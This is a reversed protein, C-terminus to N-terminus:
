LYAYCAAQCVGQIHLLCDNCKDLLPTRVVSRITQEYKEGQAGMGEIRPFRFEESNLAMCPFFSGDPNVCINNTGKNKDIECVNKVRTNRLLFQLEEPGFLCLPYPKAFAIACRRGNTEEVLYRVLSLIKPRFAELDQLSAGGTSDARSPFIVAFSLDPRALGRLYKQLFNWDRFSEDSLNYRLTVAVRDQNVAAINTLLVDLQGPAYFGDKEIHFTVAELRNSRVIGRFKPTSVLGNTACYFSLNRKEIEDVYEEIHSSILPEGGLFGVRRLPVPAGAWDLVEGFENPTMERPFTRDLAHTFCYACSLNCRYTPSIMIQHPYRKQEFRGCMSLFSDKVGAKSGAFVRDLDLGEMGPLQSLGAMNREFQDDPLGNLVNSLEVIREARFFKELYSLPRAPEEAARRMRRRDFAFLPDLLLVEAAKERVHPDYDVVLPFISAAHEARYDKFFGDLRGLKQASSEASAGEVSGPSQRRSGPGSRDSGGIDGVMPAVFQDNVEKSMKRIVAVYRGIKRMLRPVADPALVLLLVVVISIEGIGLRAM